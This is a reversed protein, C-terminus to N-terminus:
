ENQNWNLPKYVKCYILKYHTISDNLSYIFINKNSFVLEFLNNVDSKGFYSYLIHNDETIEQSSDNNYHLDLVETSSQSEKWQIPGIINVGEFGSIIKTFVENYNVKVSTSIYMPTNGIYYEIGLELVNGWQDPILPHTLEEITFRLVYRYKIYPDTYNKIKGEPDDSIDEGVWKLPILENTYSDLWYFKDFGYIVDSTKFTSSHFDKLIVYDSKSDESVLEHVYDSSFSVQSSVPNFLSDLNSTDLEYSVHYEDPFLEDIPDSQESGPKSLLLKLENM